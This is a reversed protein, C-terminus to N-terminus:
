TNTANEIARELDSAGVTYSKSGIVIMVLSDDNRHSKIGITKDVDMPVDFGDEEYVQIKQNVEIMKDIDEKNMRKEGHCYQCEPPCHPYYPYNFDIDYEYEYPNVGTFHEM